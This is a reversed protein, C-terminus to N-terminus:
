WARGPAAMERCRYTLVAAACARKWAAARAAPKWAGPTVGLEPVGKITPERLAVFPFIEHTWAEPENAVKQITACANPGWVGLCGCQATPDTVKVNAGRDRAMRQLWVMDRHGHDELRDGVEAFDQVTFIKLLCPAM